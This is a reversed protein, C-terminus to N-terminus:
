SCGGLTRLSAEDPTFEQASLRVTATGPAVTVAALEIGRPLYEAVCVPIPRDLVANLAGSVDVVTSGSSLSATEPTLVVSDATSSVRATVLYDVSLGLFSASGDYGVAGDELRLGAAGPVEILSNVASESLTLTAKLSDVPAGLDTPVGSAVLEASVPVGDVALKPATVVVRDLRGALYQQLFSFGDIRVDVDGSVNSPLNHTLEERVRGEAYGRLAVDAVVVAVALVVLIGLAVLMGVLRRRPGSRGATAGVVDAM